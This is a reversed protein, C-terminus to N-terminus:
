SEAEPTIKAIIAYRNLFSRPDSFFRAGCSGFHPATADSPPQGHNTCLKPGGRLLMLDSVLLYVFMIMRLVTRATAKAERATAQPPLWAGASSGEVASAGAASSSATPS